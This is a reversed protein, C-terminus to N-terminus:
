KPETVGLLRLAASARLKFDAFSRLRGLEKLIRGPRMYIARTAQQQAKMAMEPTFTPTKLVASGMEEYKEWDEHVLWGNQKATTYLETGPFPIAVHFNVYDPDLDKAFRITDQVTEPTEGPLGIIFYCFSLIGAKRTAAVGERIKELTIDKKCGDLIGQNGSEVGFSIMECGSAKMERALEYDITDVRSNCVWRFDHPRMAEMVKLVWSRKLTFTDTMFAFFRIGLTEKLDILEGLLNGVSRVRINTGWVTGARCFTCPYPCGRSPIVTAFPEGRSFPMRYLNYPTLERAPYPLDDLDEVLQTRPGLVPKGDRNTCTGPIQHWGERPSSLMRPLTLEAEGVLIFDAEAALLTEEPLATAHTGTLATTWGHSDKLARLYASDQKVTPTTTGAIVWDPGWDALRKETQAQTLGEAMADVIAAEHGERQTVAALYALGTQPWTEGGVSKRGCRGLEKMYIDGDPLPPNLFM